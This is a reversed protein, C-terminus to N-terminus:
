GNIQHPPSSALLGAAYQGVLRRYEEFPVVFFSEAWATDRAKLFRSCWANLGLSFNAWDREAMQSAYRRILAVKDDKWPTIDVIVNTMLASYVQYAWVEPSLGAEVCSNVMLLSARRHDPHDDLMFPLMVIEPQFAKMLGALTSVAGGHVPLKGDTLHMFYPEAGLGECVARAEEERTAREALPGSTLYVITLTNHRAGLLTGGPGLVEDDPHPALVMICGVPPSVEQCRLYNSFRMSAHLARTAEGDAPPLFHRALFRYHRAGFLHERLWRMVRKM